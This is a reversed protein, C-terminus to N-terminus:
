VSRCSFQGTDSAATAAVATAIATPLKAISALAATFMMAGVTVAVAKKAKPTAISRSWGTGSATRGARKTAKTRAAATRTHHTRMMAIGGSMASGTSRSRRSMTTEDKAMACIRTPTPAAKPRNQTSTRRTWDAMDCM